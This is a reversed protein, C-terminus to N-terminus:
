VIDSRHRVRLFSDLAQTFFASGGLAAELSLSALRLSLCLAASRSCSAAMSLFIRPASDCSRPWARRSSVRRLIRM